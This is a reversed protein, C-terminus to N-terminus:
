LSASHQAGLRRLDLHSRRCNSDGGWSFAEVPFASDGDRRGPLLTKKRTPLCPIKGIVIIARFPDISGCNIWRENWRETFRKNELLPSQVGPIDVSGAFDLEGSDSTRFQFQFRPFRSLSVRADIDDTFFSNRGSPVKQFEPPLDVAVYTYEDPPLPIATPLQLQFAEGREGTCSVKSYQGSADIVYQSKETLDSFSGVVRQTGKDTAIVNLKSNIRFESVNSAACATPDPVLNDAAVTIRTILLKRKFRNHLVIQFQYSGDAGRAPIINEVNPLESANLVVSGIDIASNGTGNVTFEPLNVSFRKYGPSSISVFASHRGVSAYFYCLAGTPDSPSDSRDCRRDQGDVRVAIQQATVAPVVHGTIMVKEDGCLAFRPLLLVGCVVLFRKM